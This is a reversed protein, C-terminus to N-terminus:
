DIDIINRPTIRSAFFPLIYVNSLLNEVIDLAILLEELSHPEVEHAAKNGMQRLHHLFQANQSTLVGQNVLGDIKQVLNRGKAERNKCVAEVLARIGIGALIFQKQSLAQYTERYIKQVKSPVVQVDRLPHRGTIRHPYTALNKYTISDDSGTWGEQDVSEWRLSLIKCGLCQIIEYRDWLVFWEDDDEDSYNRDKRDESEVSVIVRHATETACRSCSIWYEDDKTKDLNISVKRDM